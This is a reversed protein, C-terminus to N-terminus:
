ALPAIAEEASVMAAGFAAEEREQREAAAADVEARIQDHKAALLTFASALLVRPVGALVTEPRGEPMSLALVCAAVMQDVVPETVAMAMESEAARCQSVIDLLYALTDTTLNDRMWGPSPFAPYMPEDADRVARYVIEIAKADATLDPDGEALPNGKAADKVFAHSALVAANEEAKTAVRVKVKLIQKEGLGSVGILPFEHLPRVRTEIARAVAGKFEAPPELRVIPGRTAVAPAAVPPAAPQRSQAAIQAM